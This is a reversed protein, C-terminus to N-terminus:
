WGSLAVLASGSSSGGNKSTILRIVFTFTIPHPLAEMKPLSARGGRDSNNLPM